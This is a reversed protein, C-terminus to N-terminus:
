FTELRNVFGDNQPGHEHLHDFTLTFSFFFFAAKNKEEGRGGSRAFHGNSGSPEHCM